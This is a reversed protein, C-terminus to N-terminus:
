CFSSGLAVFFRHEAQCTSGDGQFNGHRVVQARRAQAQPHPVEGYVRLNRLDAPNSREKPLVQRPAVRLEPMYGKPTYTTFLRKGAPLHGGVVDFHEGWICPLRINDTSAVVGPARCIKVGM